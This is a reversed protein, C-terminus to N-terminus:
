SEFDWLKIVTSQLSDSAIVISDQVVFNVVVEQKSDPEKVRLPSSLVWGLETQVAVPEEPEGWVTRGKQFEWLYNSGILLDIELEDKTGCVNSFWLNRLHPFENKVVEVHKNSINSIVPLVYAQLRLSRNAQLPMVYFQVVERLGTEKTEQDFTNITVWEKRVIELGYNTEAKATVFSKHSGSDFLVRVKGQISGNILAQATQLAIRSEKGILLGSPINVTSTQDSYGRLTAAIEHEYVRTTLDRVIRVTLSLRVIKPM